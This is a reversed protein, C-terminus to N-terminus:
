LDICKSLSTPLSGIASSWFDGFPPPGSLLKMRTDSINCGLLRLYALNTKLRSIALRVQRTIRRTKERPNFKM